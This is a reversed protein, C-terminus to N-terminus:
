LSGTVSNFISSISGGLTVIVAVTVIVILSLILAYEAMTQGEERGLRAAVFGFLKSLFSTSISMGRDDVGALPAWM